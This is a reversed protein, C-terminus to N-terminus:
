ELHRGLFAGVEDMLEDNWFAAGGHGAGRVKVFQAPQGAARLAEYLLVSQGFPVLRDKSGHAILMPPLPREASVYSRPDARRVADPLEALPAGGLLDSEPSGAADHDMTTPETNMEDLASPGYFDVCCALELPPAEPEDSFEALHGAVTTMVATHGGSSDGWIAIPGRRIQFEEARGMLWRAATQADRVQAPFTAVSSPRYEVIAIVYGRRAFSALREVAAGLPQERWASGQVYVVLPFSQGALEAPDATAVDAGPQMVILHLDRGHKTAYRVGVQVFVAREGLVGEIERMGEPSATAEPFDEYGWEHVPM